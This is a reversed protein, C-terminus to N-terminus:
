KKGKKTPVQVRIWDFGELPTGGEEELLNGIIYLKVYEKDGFRCLDCGEVVEQRDFHLVLDPIGDGDVAHGDPEDPNTQDFPTAVDEIVWRLPAVGALLNGEDDEATIRITSPDITSVDFDETGCIAVAFKGKAEKNFPNPWSGPKIDADVTLPPIYLEKIRYLRSNSAVLITGDTDLAPSSEGPQIYLSWKETGTSSIAYFRSHVETTFYITGDAGIIPSSYRFGYYWSSPAIFEWLPIGDKNFAHVGDKSGIYVDGDPGIAPVSHGNEGILATWKVSGDPNFANLKPLKGQWPPGLTAIYVTGDSAIVPSSYGFDLPYSTVAPISPGSVESRGTHQLDHLFM